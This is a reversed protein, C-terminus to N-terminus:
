EDGGFIKIYNDEIMIETKHYFMKLSKTTRNDLRFFITKDLYYKVMNNHDRELFDVM